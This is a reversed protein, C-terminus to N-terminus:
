AQLAQKVGTEASIALTWMEHTPTTMIHSRGCGFVVHLCLGLVLWLFHVRSLLQLIHVFAGSLKMKTVLFHADLHGSLPRLRSQLLFWVWLGFGLGDAVMMYWQFDGGLFAGRGVGHVHAQSGEVDVRLLDLGM